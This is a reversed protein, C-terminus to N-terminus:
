LSFIIGARIKNQNEWNGSTLLSRLTTKIDLASRGKKLLERRWEERPERECHIRERYRWGIVVEFAAMEFVSYVMVEVGKGEGRQVRRCRGRKTWRKVEMVVGM